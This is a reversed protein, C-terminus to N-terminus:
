DANDTLDIFPLNYTPFPSSSTISAVIPRIYGILLAPANQTLLQNICKETSEVTSDINDWKFQAQECVNLVFPVDSGEHGITMSVTVLAADDTESRQINTTTRTEIHCTKLKYDSNIKFSLDVLVPNSFQFKSIKMLCRMYECLLNPQVSFLDLLKGLIVITIVAVVMICPNRIMM